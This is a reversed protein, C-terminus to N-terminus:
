LWKLFIKNSSIFYVNVSILFFLFYFCLPINENLKVQDVLIVLVLFHIILFSNFMVFINLLSKLYLLFLSVLIFFM